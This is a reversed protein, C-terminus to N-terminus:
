KVVLQDIDFLMSKQKPPKFKEEGDKPMKYINRIDWNWGAVTIVVRPRGGREEISIYDITYERDKPNKRLLEDLQVYIRRYRGEKKKDNM